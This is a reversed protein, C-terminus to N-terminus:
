SGRTLTQVALLAASTRNDVGLKAFVQELHKNVTRPSLGLITGIDRNSKGRATWLLVEAERSTLSLREKLLDQDNSRAGDNVQLLSEETGGPGIYSLVLEEPPTGSLVFSRETAPGPDGRVRDLWAHAAPPLTLGDTTSALAGVLRAGAQPTSWRLRGEHDVAFLLRGADDLVAHTSSTVRAAALHAALRAILEEPVIPKTVYDVGGAAFGEVIHETESLGTMFIVPVTSLLTNRKLQRCTEFGDMGPMVADMLIIDPVAENISRLASTGNFAVLVTFGAEEIADTLFRLSEPSDDVVLVTPHSAHDRM